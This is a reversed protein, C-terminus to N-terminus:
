AWTVNANNGPVEFWEGQYAEIVTGDGLAGGFTGVDAAGGNIGTVLDLTHANASAAIFTLRIGDHTTATPDVLTMAAVGAKTIYYTTSASPVAIAGDATVAVVSQQVGGIVTGTLDGTVDGTVDGTLNGTIGNTVAVARAVLQNVNLKIQAM